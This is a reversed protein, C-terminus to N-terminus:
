ICVCACVFLYVCVRERMATVHWIQFFGDGAPPLIANSIILNKSLMKILTPISSPPLFAFTSLPQSPFSTALSVYSASGSGVLFLPPPPLLCDMHWGANCIDCLLMQHQEFPSQCVQCVAFSEWIFFNGRFIVTLRSIKKM